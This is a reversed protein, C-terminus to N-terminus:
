FLTAILSIFCIHFGFPIITANLFQRDMLVELGFRNMKLCTM